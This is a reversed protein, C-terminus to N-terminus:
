ESWEAISLASVRAPASRPSATYPSFTRETHYASVSLDPSSSSSTDALVSPLTLASIVPRQLLARYAGCRHAPQGVPFRDLAKGFSARRPQPFTPAPRSCSPHVADAAAFCPLFVFRANHTRLADEWHPSYAPRYRRRFVFHTIHHLLRPSCCLRPQARIRKPPPVSQRM